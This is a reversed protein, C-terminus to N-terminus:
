ADPALASGRGWSSPGPLSLGGGRWGEPLPPVRTPLAHRRDRPEIPATCTARERCGASRAWERWRRGHGVEGDFIYNAVHAMEHLLTDLRGPDNAPLMLDVHLAIEVVVRRAGVSGAVMQGLRSTFRNSLRIPITSPLRGSFRTANMYRYLRRLYVRQLPTACCPGPRRVSCESKEHVRAFHDRMGEWAAVRKRAMRYEGSRRGAGRVLAAFALIVSPPAEAYARHLNLV